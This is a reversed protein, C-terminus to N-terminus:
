GRNGRNQRQNKQQRSKNNEQEELEKMKEYLGEYGLTIQVVRFPGEERVINPELNDKYFNLIFWLLHNVWVKEHNYKIGTKREYQQVANLISNKKAEDSAKPDLREEIRKIGEATQKLNRMTKINKNVSVRLSQLTGEYDIARKKHKSIPSNMANRLSLDRLLSPIRQNAIDQLTWIHEQALNPFRKPDMWIPLNPAGFNIQNPDASTYQNPDTETLIAQIEEVANPDAIVPFQIRDRWYHIRNLSEQVRERLVNNDDNKFFKLSSSENLLEALVNEFGDEITRVSKIKNPIPYPPSIDQLKEEQLRVELGRIRDHLGRVQTEESIWTELNKRILELKPASFELEHIKKILGKAEKAAHALENPDRVFSYSKKVLSAASQAIGAVIREKQANGFSMLAFIAGAIGLVCVAIIILIAMKNSGAPQDYSMNMNEYDPTKFPSSASLRVTDYRGMGPTATRLAQRALCLLSADMADSLVRYGYSFDEKEEDLLRRHVWRIMQLSCISEDVIVPSSSNTLQNLLILVQEAIDQPLPSDDPEVSIETSETGRWLAPHELFPLIDFDLSAWEEQSVLVTHFRLTARGYDDDAGQFVRTIAWRGSRLKRVTFAPHRKLSAMYSADNTQGFSFSELEASESDTVDPSRFQTQYGKRSAFIHHAVKIKM